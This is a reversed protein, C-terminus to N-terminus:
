FIAGSHPNGTLNTARRDAERRLTERLREDVSQPM